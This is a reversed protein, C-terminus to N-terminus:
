QFNLGVIVSKYLHIDYISIYFYILRTRSMFLTLCHPPLPAQEKLHSIWKPIVFLICCNSLLTFLWFFIIKNRLCVIDVGVKNPPM